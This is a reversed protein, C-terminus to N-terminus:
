SDAYRSHEHIYVRNSRDFMQRECVDYLLLKSLMSVFILLILLVGVLLGLGLFLFLISRFMSVVLFQKIVWDVYFLIMLNQLFTHYRPRCGFLWGFFIYFFLSFCFFEIM